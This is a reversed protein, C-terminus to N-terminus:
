QKKQPEAPRAPAAHGDHRTVIGRGEGSTAAENAHGRQVDPAPDPPLVCISAIPMAGAAVM